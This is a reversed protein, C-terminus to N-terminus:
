CTACKAVHEVIDRKIGPWWFNRELDKYMKISGPHITYKSRHAEDLLSQKVEEVQAVYLRLDYRLGGDVVVSFHPAEGVSLKGLTNQVFPDFQQAVVIAEVLRLRVALNALCM